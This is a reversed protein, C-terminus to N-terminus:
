IAYPWGAQGVGLRFFYVPVQNLARLDEPHNSDQGM